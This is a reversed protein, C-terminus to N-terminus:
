LLTKFIIITKNLNTLAEKTVISQIEEKDKIAIFNINGSDANNIFERDPFIINKSM